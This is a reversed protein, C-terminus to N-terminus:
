KKQSFFAMADLYEEEEEQLLRDAEWLGSSTRQSYRRKRPKEKHFVAALDVSTPCKGFIADPNTTAQRKLMPLLIEKKSWVAHPKKASTNSESDSCEDASNCDNSIDYSTPGSEEAAAVAALGLAAIAKQSAPAPAQFTHVVAAVPANGAKAKPSFIGGVTSILSKVGGFLSSGVAPKQPSFMTAPVVTPAILSAISAQETLNLVANQHAFVGPRQVSTDASSPAASSAVLAAPVKQLARAQEKRKAEELAAAASEKERRRKEEEERKRRQEEDLQAKIAAQKAAEREKKAREAEELKRRNEEELQLRRERAAKHKAESDLRLASASEVEAVKKEADRRAKDAQTAAVLPKPKMQRSESFSGNLSCDMSANLSCDLATQVFSTDAFSSQDLASTLAPATSSATPTALAAM